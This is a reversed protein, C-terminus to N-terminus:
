RTLGLTFKLKDFYPLGKRHKRCIYDLESKRMASNVIASSAQHVGTRNVVNIENLIKPLGYSDFCRKYYDCDMLWTLNEDFLLPSDNRIALVSPSSITNEGLFIKQQYKPYFPRYFNIGDHTHECASVLWYDCALDFKNVISQLSGESYLFDDQFLIKIIEGRANKIANNTNASIGYSKSNHLYRINLHNSYEACVDKVMWDKSNDSIVVEFDKFSQILLVDLSNKLFASGLGGMNYTPICVSIM